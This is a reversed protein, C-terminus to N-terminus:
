FGEASFFWMLLVVGGKGKWREKEEKFFTAMIHGKRQLKIDTEVSCAFFTPFHSTAM